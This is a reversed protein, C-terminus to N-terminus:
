GRVTDNKLVPCRPRDTPDARPHFPAGKRLLRLAQRYINASVAYTQPRRWVLSSLDARSSGRRRLALNADFIRTEGHRNGLHVNLREQPKSWSMVYDQDM